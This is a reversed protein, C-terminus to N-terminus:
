DFHLALHEPGKSKGRECACAGGRLAWWWNGKLYAASSRWCTRVSIDGMTWMKPARSVPALGPKPRAPAKMLSM